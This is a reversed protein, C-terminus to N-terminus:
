QITMHYKYKLTDKVNLKEFIISSDTALYFRNLKKLKTQIETYNKLQNKQKLQLVGFRLSNVGIINLISKGWKHESFEM